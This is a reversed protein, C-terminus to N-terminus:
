LTHGHRLQPTPKPEPDPNYGAVTLTRWLNVVADQISIIAGVSQKLKM